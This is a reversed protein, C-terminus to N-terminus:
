SDDIAEETLSTYPSGKYLYKSDNKLWIYDKPKGKLVEVVQSMKPRSTMPKYVCAAVCYIMQNMQMKDYNKLLKPDVLDNYNESDLNAIDTDDLVRKLRFIAWNVLRVNDELQAFKGHLHSSLSNKPVFEYVLSRNAKNSCYGLVKVINQHPDIRSLIEAEEKYQRRAMEEKEQDDQHRLRKIAVVEGNPLKGKYVEGCTGTGLLNDKDFYGTAKALEKHSFTRVGAIPHHNANRRRNWLGCICSVPTM